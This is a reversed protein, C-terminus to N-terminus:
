FDKFPDHENGYIWNPNEFKSRDYIEGSKDLRLWEINDESAKINGLNLRALFQQENGLHSLPMLEYHVDRTQQHFDKVFDGIAKIANTTEGRNLTTARDGVAHKLDYHALYKDAYKRFVEVVDLTHELSATMDTGNHASAIQSLRQITLNSNSRSKSPDTLARIKLIANDWLLNQLAKATSGSATNLVEVREIPGCYFYLFIRWESYLQSVKNTLLHVVKGDDGFTNKYDEAVEEHTQDTM